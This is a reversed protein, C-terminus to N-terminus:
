KSSWEMPYLRSNDALHLNQVATNSEFPHDIVIDDFSIRPSVAARQRIPPIRPQQSAESIKLARMKTELENFPM